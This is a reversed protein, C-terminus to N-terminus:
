AGGSGPVAARAVYQDGRAARGPDGSEAPLGGAMAQALQTVDPTLEAPRPVSDRGLTRLEERLPALAADLVDAPLNPTVARRVAEAMHRRLEGIRASHDPATPANRTVAAALFAPDQMAEVFLQWGAENISTM